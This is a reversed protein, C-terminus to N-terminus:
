RFDTIMIANGVGESRTLAIRKGDRSYERRSVGPLQFKTMAKGEGGNVPQLWLNQLEGPAVIMTIGSDDPTWIPGRSINVDRPIEFFKVAPGGEAPVIALRNWDQTKENAVFCAFRSGDRSYRPEIAPYETLLQPVGGEIPIRLVRSMGDIWASYIVWKGDPSIDPNDAGSGKVLVQPNGGNIDIRVLEGGASSSTYVIYRGDPSVVPSTKFIRDNTLPRANGGDSDILWIETDGTQDSIYVIKGDATWSIGWTDGSPPVIQKANEPKLDSSVWVSGRAYIEGTVISKGDGTISVSSYGNLNNTLPRVSGSPYSIEWLQPQALYNEVAAAIISDGSQHWVLDDIVAWRSTGLQMPEGGAVPILMISQSPEPDLDDDGAAIALTTGDPSWISAAGFYQKGIRQALKREGSGDANAVFVASELTEFDFRIFSVLRGDPSFQPSIANALVKTPTGGLSPVRYVTPPGEIKSDANFYLFNGDPSFVLRGFRDLEGPKVIQINSNTQIQKIWISREGGETRLYALFKGDPSIEASRTKGDGTLRQTKISESSRKSTVSERREFFKYIGYGFGGLVLLV